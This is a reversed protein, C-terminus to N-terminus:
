GQLTGTQEFRSRELMQRGEKGEWHDTQGRWAEKGTTGQLVQALLVALLAMHDKGTLGREVTM